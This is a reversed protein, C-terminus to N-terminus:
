CATRAPCLPSVSSSPTIQDFRRAEVTAFSIAPAFSATVLAGDAKGISISKSDISAIKGRIVSPAPLDAALALAAVLLFGSGFTLSLSRM